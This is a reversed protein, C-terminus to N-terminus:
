GLFLRLKNILLKNIKNLLILLSFNIMLWILMIIKEKKKKKEENIM